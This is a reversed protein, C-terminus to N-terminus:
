EVIAQRVANEFDWRVFTDSTSVMMLSVMKEQPELSVHTGYAGRWGYAGRSVSLGAVVPDVAVQVSLGFGMGHAIGLQGEFLSGVHNSSM